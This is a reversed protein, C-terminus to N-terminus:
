FLRNLALRGRGSSGGSHIAALMFFAPKPEGAPERRAGFSPWIEAQSQEGKTSFAVSITFTRIAGAASPDAADGLRRKPASLYGALLIV